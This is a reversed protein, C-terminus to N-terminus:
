LQEKLESVQHTLLADEMDRWADEVYGNQPIFEKGAADHHHKKSMITVLSTVQSVYQPTVKSM